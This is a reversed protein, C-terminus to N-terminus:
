KGYLEPHAFVGQQFAVVLLSVFVVFTVVFVAAATMLKVRFKARWKVFLWWGMVGGIALSVAWILPDEVPGLHPVYLWGLVAAILARLPFWAELVTFVVAAIINKKAM